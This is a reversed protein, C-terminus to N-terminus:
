SPDKSVKSWSQPKKTISPLLTMGIDGYAQHNAQSVGTEGDFNFRYTLYDILRRHSRESARQRLLLIIIFKRDERELGPLVQGSVHRIM